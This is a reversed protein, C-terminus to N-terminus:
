TQLDNNKLFGSILRIEDMMPITLRTTAKIPMIGSKPHSLQIARAKLAM